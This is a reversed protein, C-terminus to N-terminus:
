MAYANVLYDAELLIQYDIGNVNKYTHNNGVLFIIRKKLVESIDVDQLFKEVLIAGEKKINM